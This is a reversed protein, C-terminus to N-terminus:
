SCADLSLWVTGEPFNARVSRKPPKLSSSRHWTTFMSSRSKPQALDERDPHARHANHIPPGTQNGM